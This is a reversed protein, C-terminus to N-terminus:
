TTHQINLLRYRILPKSCTNFNGPHCFGLKVFFFILSPRRSGPIKGFKTSFQYLKPSLALVWYTSSQSATKCIPHCHIPAAVRPPAPVRSRVFVFLRGRAPPAMIFKRLFNNDLIMYFPDIFVINEVGLIVHPCKLNQRFCIM